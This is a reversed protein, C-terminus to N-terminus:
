LGENKIGKSIEESNLATNKIGQTINHKENEEKICCKLDQTTKVAIYYISRNKCFPFM